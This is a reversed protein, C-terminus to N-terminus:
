YNLYDQLILIAAVKDLLAKDRRKKKKAGSQAIIEKARSSSHNEDYLVVKIHPYKNDLKKVWKRITHTIPMPNGDPHLPEGVVIEDVEEQEIYNDLFVDLSNTPITDLGHVAIQLPDTAAIGTRVKGYDIGMIRGM